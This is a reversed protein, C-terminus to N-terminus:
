GRILSVAGAEDIVVQGGDELAASAVELSTTLRDIEARMAMVESAPMVVELPALDTDACDPSLPLRSDFDRWEGDIVVEFVSDTIRTLTAWEPMAARITAEEEDGGLWRYHRRDM